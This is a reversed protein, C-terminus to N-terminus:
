PSIIVQKMQEVVAQATEFEYEDIANSLKNILPQLTNGQLVTKNEALYDGADADYNSVLEALQNLIKEALEKDIPAAEASGTTQEASDSNLASLAAILPELQSEVEQALEEAVDGALAATELLTAQEALQSAGISGALGKLTHAERVAAEQNNQQWADRYRTPMEAQSTAFRSLLRLYLSHNGQTHALGEQINVGTIEPIPMAEADAGATETTEPQRQIPTAPTIWRAMTTFMEQVDIPKPIHDNMGAKIAKERDGAMANATLALIPLNKWEPNQRILTTTTYGDMVPMQCDMLIGDFSTENLLELAHEGHNALSVKIQQQTLLEEILEQNVENDEVVLVNAGRLRDIADLSLGQRQQHRSIDAVQHGMALMLADLLSSPTLPKTLLGHFEIGHAAASLEERGYATIMIIKPQPEILTSNQIRRVTEVGDIAPMRWDMLVLQYSHQQLAEIALQGSNVADVQCGFRSLQSCLIERASANDDVVLINLKAVADEGARTPALEVQQRQFTLTFSFTSGVDPQSQLSIEGGMLETLKRCIALGLGTGGYKRNTSSDAQTFPQFLKAQQADTMGIGTDRIAFSLTASDDSLKSSNVSIVIEGSETFKVANNGLNTLIQGLRLPDGILATPLDPEIDFLLELEKEEAKLGVLNALGDLVDELRFPILEIDLKGAEIKSFDLIDNIIGLLAESSRHVKEIYNRQKHSLETQLALHSMGIIANMPTRIEHSMNALFDSKAQNAEEARQRELDAIEKAKSTEAQLEKQKQINLFVGSFRVPYGRSDKRSVQGVNLFWRYQGDKQKLRIESQYPASPDRKLEALHEDNISRDDPHIVQQLGQHGGKISSWKENSVLLEKASYGLMHAFHQNVMVINQTPYYDWVGLGAGSSAADLRDESEKLKDEAQKRKTIDRVIGTFSLQGNRTSKGVMLSMPFEEDAKTKGTVERENNVVSSPKGPYYNALINDHQIAIDAPMLMSVNQGEVESAAYGFMREAAPSFTEVIGQQNIVIIGDPVTELINRIRADSEQQKLQLQQQETIDFMTGDFLTAIGQEDFNFSASISVIRMDNADGGRHLRITVDTPKREKQSIFLAQPIIHQDETIILESLKRKPQSGLYDEAPFGIIEQWRPSIYVANAHALNNNHIEYRFIAGQLNETLTRFQYESASLQQLVQERASLDLASLNLENSNETPKVSLSVTVTTNDHRLLIVDKDKIEDGAALHDFATDTAEVQAPPLLNNWTLREFEHRDYGLLEAFAANHKIFGGDSNLSAYAVPSYEYLTWLMNERDKLDSTREAVNHELQANAQQLKQTVERGIWFILLAMMLCLLLICVIIVSIINRLELYGELVENRDIETVVGFGLEDVWRWAGLVQIGRYDMYGESDSGTSQAAIQAASFSLPLSDRESPQLPADHLDRGPNNLTVNLVSSTDEALLGMAQLSPEFRSPSLMRGDDSVFYSEGSSGFQGSVTLSRFEGIPDIRLTLVAIVEGNDDRIPSAIFMTAVNHSLEGSKTPLAVDTQMPPILVTEGNFARALLYSHYHDIINVQGLNDDRMSGINIRNPSIIFFGMDGYSDRVRQFMDRLTQLPASQKLTIANPPVKLLDATLHKFRPFGTVSTARFKWGDLWSVLAAEMTDTVAALTDVAQYQMRQKSTALGAQTILLILALLLLIASSALLKSRQGSRHTTVARVTSRYLLAANVLLALLLLIGLGFIVEIPM